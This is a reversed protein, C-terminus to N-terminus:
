QSEQKRQKKRKMRFEKADEITPFRKNQERKTRGGTKKKYSYLETIETEYLHESTYTRVYPSSAKLSPASIPFPM